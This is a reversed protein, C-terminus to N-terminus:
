RHRRHWSTERGALLFSTTLVGGAVGSARTVQPRHSARCYMLVHSTTGSQCAPAAALWPTCRFHRRPWSWLHVTVSVAVPPPRYNLYRGGRPGQWGNSRARESWIPRSVRVCPNPDDDETTQCRLPAPHRLGSPAAANSPPSHGGTSPALSRERNGRPLADTPGPLPHGAPRSPCEASGLHARDGARVVDGGRRRGVAEQELKAICPGLPRHICLTVPKLTESNQM